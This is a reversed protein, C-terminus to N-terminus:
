TCVLDSESSEPARIECLCKPPSQTGIVTVTPLEFVEAPNEAGVRGAGLTTALAVAFALAGPAAARGNLDASRSAGRCSAWPSM